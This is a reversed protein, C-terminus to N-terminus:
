YKGCNHLCNGGAENKGGLDGLDDMLRGGERGGKRWERGGRKSDSM